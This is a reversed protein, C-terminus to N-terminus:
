YFYFTFNFRCILILAVFEVFLFRFQAFPLWLVFFLNLFAFTLLNARKELKQSLKCLIEFDFAFHLGFYVFFHQNVNVKLAQIRNLYTNEQM